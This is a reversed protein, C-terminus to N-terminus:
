ILDEIEGDAVEPWYRRDLFLVVGALAMMLVAVVLGVMGGTILLNGWQQADM